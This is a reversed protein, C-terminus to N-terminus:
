AAKLAKLAHIYAQVARQEDPSLNLFLAELDSLKKPGRNTELWYASYGTALAIRVIAASEGSGNELGSLTGQKIAAKRALTKQTM